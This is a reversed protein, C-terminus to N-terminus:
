SKLNLYEEVEKIKSTNLLSARAVEHQAYPQTSYESWYIELIIPYTGNKRRKLERTDKRVKFTEGSKYLM